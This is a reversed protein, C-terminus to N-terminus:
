IIIFDEFDDDFTEANIINKAKKIWIVSQKIYKSIDLLYDDLFNVVERDNNMDAIEIVEYIKERYNSLFDSVDEFLEIHNEYDNTNAELALRVPRGGLQIILNSIGDAWVPFQHAYKEHFIEQAQVFTNVDLYYACNDAHSNGQFTLGLLENLAKETEKHLLKMIKDGVKKFNEM